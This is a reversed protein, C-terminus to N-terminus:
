LQIAHVARTFHQIQPISKLGPATELRSAADAGRCHIRDQQSLASIRARVNDGELGGALLFSAPPPFQAAHNQGSGGHVGTQSPATEWLYLDADVIDQDPSDPWPLLLKLGASHVSAVAAMRKEAPLYPQVWGLGCALAEDIITDINEAVSVLVGREGVDASAEDLNVCHRPSAPHRVFGVLDAGAELAAQADSSRTIGCVKALLTM